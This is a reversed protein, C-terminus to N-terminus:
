HLHRHSIYREWFQDFSRVTFILADYVSHVIMAPVLGWTMTIHFFMFGLVWSNLYGIPGLYKHGDRFAANVSCMAAGVAWFEPNRLITEFHGFTLINFLWGFFFNHAFEYIGLNPVRELGLTHAFSTVWGFFLFNTLKAVWVANFWFLWRYRIEETIGALMSVYLGKFLNNHWNHNEEPDNLTFISVIATVGAGWLLIWRSAWLWDLVSGKIIWNPWMSNIPSLGSPFATSIVILTFLSSLVTVIIILTQLPLDSEAARLSAHTIAHWLRSLAQKSKNLM